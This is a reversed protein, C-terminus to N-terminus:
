FTAKVVINVCGIERVFSDVRLSEESYYKVTGASSGEEERKFIQMAALFAEPSKESM